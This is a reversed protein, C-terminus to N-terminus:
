ARPNVPRKLPTNHAHPGTTDVPNARLFVVWFRLGVLLKGIAPEVFQHLPQEIKQTM